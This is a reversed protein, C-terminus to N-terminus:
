KGTPEESHLEELVAMRRNGNIVFSDHTIVSPEMQRKKRLDEKLVKTDEPKLELLIKRIVAVHDARSADLKDKNDEEWKRVEMAMRGNNANYRLLGIPFRYFPLIEKEGAIEIPWDGQKADPHTNIYADIEKARESQIKM